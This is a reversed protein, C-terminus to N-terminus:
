DVYSRLDQGSEEVPDFTLQWYTKIETKGQRWCAMSGPRLRRISRYFTREGATYGLTWYHDFAQLDLDGGSVRGTALLAPIESAYVLSGDPLNLYFLPKQGARDRCLSLEEREGNFYGFAFM